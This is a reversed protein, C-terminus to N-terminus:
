PVNSSSMPHKLLSLNWGVAVGLAPDVTRGALHIFAGDYPFLSVIEQQCQGISYVITAWFLFAILLALLGSPVGNGIAGGIATLQIQRPNLRRHNISEVVRAAM